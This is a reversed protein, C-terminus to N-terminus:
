TANQEDLHQGLKVSIQRKMNTTLNPKMLEVLLFPVALEAVGVSSDRQQIEGSLDEGTNEEIAQVSVQLMSQERFALTAESSVSSCDVHDEGSSLTFFAGPDADGVPHIASEVVLSPYVEARMDGCGGDMFKEESVVACQICRCFLFDLPAHVGESGGTVVQSKADVSLFRNHHMLRRWIGDVGCCVDIDTTGLQFINIGERVQDAIEGAAGFKVILDGMLEGFGALDKSAQLVHDPISLTEVEAGFERHPFSDYQRHQQISRLRPRDVLLLHPLEVVEVEAAKASYGPMLEMVGVMMSVVDLYEDGTVEEEVVAKAKVEVVVMLSPSQRRSEGNYASHTDLPQDTFQSDSPSPEEMDVSTHTIPALDHQPARLRTRRATLWHAWEWM